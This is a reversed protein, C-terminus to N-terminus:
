NQVYATDYKECKAGLAEWLAADKVSCWLGVKVKDVTM